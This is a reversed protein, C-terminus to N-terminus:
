EELPEGGYRETTYRRLDVPLLPTIDTVHSTCVSAREDGIVGDLDDGFVDALLACARTETWSELVQLVDPETGGSAVLRKGDPPWALRDTDVKSIAIWSGLQEGSTSDFLGLQDQSVAIV